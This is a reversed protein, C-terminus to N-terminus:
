RRQLPAGPGRRLLVPHRAERPGPSASSITGAFFIGPVSASEWLPTVAPLKPRASRRSGSSRRPGPAPLHVRDRRHGRRCRREDGRRQRDAQHEVRFGDSSPSSRRRDLRRPDLGRPRPLQGRVAARLAGPGRGAVEDPDLDQRAVALLGHDDVGLGRPGLRARLGLEAQRHHVAAQGRVSSADRTDRTTARRARDGAADPEVAAAIGVALVLVRTRYEGDTTELTFTTGDPGDDRRTREWRCDYRVAIGAQEAFATSTPRWRPGRRSTRRATWSVRGPAVAARARVAILSNWDYRQYERSTLEEPAYPKTWSLLRQFFPWRRFM